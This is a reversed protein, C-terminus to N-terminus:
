PRYWKQKSYLNPYQDAQTGGTSTSETYNNSLALGSQRSILANGQWYWQQNVNNNQCSWINARGHTYSDARNDLCFGNVTKLQETSSDYFWKQADTGNCSYAQVNGGNSFNGGEVDLCKNDYHNKLPQFNATSCSIKVSSIKDGIGSWNSGHYGGSSSNLDNDYGYTGNGSGTITLATSNYGSNNYATLTCQSRICYSIASTKDGFDITSNHLYNFDEKDSNFETITINRGGDMHDDDYLTAWSGTGCSGYDNDIVNVNKNRFETIPALNSSPGKDDDHASALLILEGHNNGNGGKAVYFGGAAQLDCMRTGTSEWNTCYIHRRGEYNLTPTGYLYGNADYKLGSVQYLFMYDDLEAVGRQTGAVFLSNDDQRILNLAQHAGSGTEWGNTQSTPTVYTLWNSTATMTNGTLKFQRFRVRRNNDTFVMVTYLNNSDEIIGVAGAKDYDVNISDQGSTGDATIDIASPMNTNYINYLYIRAASGHSGGSCEEAAVALVRGAAQIGGFHDCTGSKTDEWYTTASGIPDSGSTHNKGKVWLNHNMQRTEHEHPLNVGLVAAPSSTDGSKSLFLISGINPHRSIGQYHNFLTPDITGRTFGTPTGHDNISFFQEPVNKVKPTIPNISTSAAVVFSWSGIFASIIGSVLLKVLPLRYRLLIKNFM